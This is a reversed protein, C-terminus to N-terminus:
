ATQAPTDQWITERMVNATSGRSQARGTGNLIGNAELTQIARAVGDEARLLRGIERARKQMTESSAIEISRVLWDLTVKERPMAPVAVGLKELRSAWFPQDGFVPAVLSPIGARAAAHTTGAGGHHLAMAMRPFLWDHPAHRLTFISPDAEDQGPELGGWGTALIFRRGTKAAAERVIGTLRSASHDIMSGFGVYIPPPGEALFRVLEAPPQWVDNEILTWAGTVTNGAPWGPDPPVLTPSYALLRQHRAAIQAYPSESGYPELDLAPRVIGDYTPRFTRWVLKRSLRWLRRNVAAPMRYMWRPMPILPPEGSPLTPVLQSEVFPIGLREGLAAALMFVMGNGILLDSGQAALIGESPWQRAMDQLKAQFAAVMARVHLANRQLDQSERMWASFDGRLPVYDLGRGELLHACSPDTAIRVSHGAQKLGVGLAVLPRVDGETGITFITIKM